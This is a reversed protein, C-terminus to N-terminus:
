LNVPASDDKRAYMVRISYTHCLMFMLGDTFRNTYLNSLECEFYYRVRVHIHMLMHM